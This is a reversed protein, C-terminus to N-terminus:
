GRDGRRRLPRPPWSSARSLRRLVDVEVETRSSAAGAVRWFRRRLAGEVAVVDGDDLTRATRRVGAAWAVCDVTDIMTARVGAPAARRAPPRDVVVRWAVLADGSPLERQEPTGSVRGVLVVENRGGPQAQAPKAGAARAAM